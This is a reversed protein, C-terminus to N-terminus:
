ARTFVDTIRSTAGNTAFITVIDDAQITTEGQPILLDDGRLIAVIITEKPLLDERDAEILSLGDVPAGEDVTAEFIEPDGAIPMFEQIAPHQVSRFLM